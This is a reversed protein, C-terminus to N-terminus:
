KEDSKHRVIDVPYNKDAVFDEIEKRIGRLESDKMSLIEHPTFWKSDLIENKNFQLKGDAVSGRFVIKAVVRNPHIMSKGVYVGLLGTIEIDFGTEEKVERKAGELPGEGKEIHGAPTNWLGYAPLKAEKVLLIKGDKEIIAGVVVLYSIENTKNVDVLDVV